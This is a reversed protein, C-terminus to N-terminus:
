LSISKLTTLVADQNQSDEDPLGGLQDLRNLYKPLDKFIKVNIGKHGSQALMKSLHDECLSEPLSARSTYGCLTNNKYVLHDVQFNKDYSTFVMDYLCNLFGTHEDIADCSAEDLSKFKLFMIMEVTSKCAPLCGLVAVVTLLNARTHTAAYGAIFLVLSIAFYLITRLIEYKKQSDLYHRMGKVSHTTFMRKM